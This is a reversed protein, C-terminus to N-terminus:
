DLCTRNFRNINSQFESLKTKLDTLSDNYEDVANNYVNLEYSCDDWRSPTCLNYSLRKSELESKASEFRDHAQSIEDQSEKLYKISRECDYDWVSSYINKPFILNVLFLSFLLSTKVEDIKIKSMRIRTSELEGLSCNYNSINENQNRQPIASKVPCM